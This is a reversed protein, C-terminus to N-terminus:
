EGDSARRYAEAAAHLGKERQEEETLQHANLAANYARVKLAVKDRVYSALSCGHLYAKEDHYQMLAACFATLGEEVEYFGKAAMYSTASSLGHQMLWDDGPVRSPSYERTLDGGDSEWDVSALALWLPHIPWRSRTQDEPNPLTLRLWETTAYGWIGGLSHMASNFDRLGLQSLAEQKFQFEMRWVPSQGDWGAKTWLPLLYVKKSKTAVELTKDYLRAAVVGGIGVSWGSFRGDVSYANIASARTVWADRDWSEMEVSAVFDAFLDIRSVKPDELKDTLQQLLAYLDIELQEPTRAALADSSIKVYAVPLGKSTSKALQIRFTKDELVYPFLGAGKDKVEFIHGDLKLQALAQDAPQASQALKKLKELTIQVELSLQGKYSLYLSDVGWRFPIFFFDSGLGDSGGGNGPNGSPNSNLPVRNTPPTGGGDGGAAPAPAPQARLGCRDSAAEPSITRALSDALCSSVAVFPSVPTGPQGTARNGFSEMLFEMREAPM